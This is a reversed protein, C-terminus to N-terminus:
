SWSKTGFILWKSKDKRRKWHSSIKFVCSRIPQFRSKFGVLCTLLNCIEYELGIQTLWGFAICQAWEQFCVIKEWLWVFILSMKRFFWVTILSTLGFFWVTILSTLGFFWVVGFFNFFQCYNIQAEYQRKLPM